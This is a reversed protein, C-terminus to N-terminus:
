LIEKWAELHAACLDPNIRNVAVGGDTMYYVEKRLIGSAKADNYHEQCCALKPGGHKPCKGEAVPNKCTEKVCVGDVGEGRQHMGAVATAFAEATGSLWGDIERTETAFVGQTATKAKELAKTLCGLEVKSMHNHRLPLWRRSTGEGSSDVHDDRVNEIVMEVPAWRAWSKDTFWQDSNRHRLVVHKPDDASITYMVTRLGDADVYEGAVTLESPIEGESIGAQEQLIRVAAKAPTEGAAM